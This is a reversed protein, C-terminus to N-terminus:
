ESGTKHKSKELLKMVLMRILFYVFFIVIDIILTIVGGFGILYNATGGKESFSLILFQYIPSSIFFPIALEFRTLRMLPGYIVDADIVYFCILCIVVAVLGMGLMHNVYVKNGTISLSIYEAVTIVIGIFLMNIHNKLTLNMLFFDSKRNIFSGILIYPLARTLFNGGLFTHGLFNFGIVNSMEGTLFTVALCLIAFLIDFKLLKLKNLVFVIIYAYLLSHVYYLVSGSHLSFMNLLLFDTWFKKTKITALTNEPELLFSIGLYVAFLIFFCIATRKITRKIREEKNPSEHLVIYGSIIYLAPISFGFIVGNLDGLGPYLGFSYLIACIMLFFRMKKVAPIYYRQPPLAEDPIQTNNPQQVDEKIYEDKYTEMVKHSDIEM